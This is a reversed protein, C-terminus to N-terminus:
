SFSFDSNLGTLSQKFIGRIDCEAQASPITCVYMCVYM